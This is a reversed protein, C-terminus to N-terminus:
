VHRETDCGLRITEEDLLGAGHGWGRHLALSAQEDLLIAGRTIVQPSACPPHGMSEVLMVSERAQM